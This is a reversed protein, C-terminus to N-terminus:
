RRRFSRRRRGLRNDFQRRTWARDAEGLIVGAVLITLIIGLWSM